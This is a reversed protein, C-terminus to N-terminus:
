LNDFADGGDDCGDGDEEEHGVVGGVALAEEVLLLGYQSTVTEHDITNTQSLTGAGLRNRVPNRELHGNAVPTDPSLAEEEHKNSTRLSHLVEDRGKHVAKAPSSRLALTLKNLGM